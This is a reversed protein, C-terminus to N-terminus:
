NKLEYWLIYRAVKRGAECQHAHICVRTSVHCVCACVCLGSAGRKGKFFPNSYTWLSIRQHHHLIFDNM